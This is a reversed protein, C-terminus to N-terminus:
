AAPLRPLADAREALQEKLRAVEDQLAAVERRRASSQARQRHERLWELVLGIVTGTFGSALIVAALPIDKLSYGEGGVAPPLLFVDVPALNAVGVVVLAVALLGLVITKIM